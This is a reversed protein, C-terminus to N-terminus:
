PRSADGRARTQASGGKLLGAIGAVPETNRRVTNGTNQLASGAQFLRQGKEANGTPLHVPYRTGDQRTWWTTTRPRTLISQRMLASGSRDLAHAGAVTGLRAAGAIAADSAGMPAAHLMDNAIPMATPYAKRIGNVVGNKVSAWDIM